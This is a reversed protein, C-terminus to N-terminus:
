GVGHLTAWNKVSLSSSRAVSGCWIL